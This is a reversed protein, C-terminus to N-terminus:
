SPNGPFDNNISLIAVRSFIFSVLSSGRARVLGKCQPAVASECAVVCSTQTESRALFAFRNGKRM